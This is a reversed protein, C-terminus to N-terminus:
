SSERLQICQVGFGHADDLQVADQVGDRPVPGVADQGVDEAVDVLGGILLLSPLTPFVM